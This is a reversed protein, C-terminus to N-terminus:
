RAGSMRNLLIGAVFAAVAALLWQVRWIQLAQWDLVTRADFAASVFVTSVLCVVGAAFAVLAATTLGLKERLLAFDLYHGFRSAIKEMRRRPQADRQTGCVHCFRAGVVFESSCRQCSDVEEAVVNRQLHELPPRWYEPRAEVNRVMEAM